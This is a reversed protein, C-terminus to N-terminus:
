TKIEITPRLAHTIVSKKEGIEHLNLKSILQFVRSPCLIKEERYLSVAGLDWWWGFYCDTVSTM